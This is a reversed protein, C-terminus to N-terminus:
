KIKGILDKEKVPVQMAPVERAYDLQGWVNWLLVGKVRKDDLYYLV